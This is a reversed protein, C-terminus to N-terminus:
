LVIRSARGAPVSYTHHCTGEKKNEQPLFYAVPGVVDPVAQKLGVSRRQEVPIRRVASAVPVGNHEEVLVEVVLAGMLARKVVM